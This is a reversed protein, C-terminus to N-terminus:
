GRKSRFSVFKDPVEEQYKRYDDGLHHVLDKEELYTGMFIYATMGAAFVLHSVTMRPTAWFAIIMGTMMPHRVLKYLLPTRFKPPTHKQGRLNYYVQQLGFLEFHNILYMSTLVILWGAWFLGQLVSRGIANEVEWVVGPMTRWQWFIVALLVSTVLVFTSREIPRPIIKIWHKKFQWRAMITHQIAFLAILFMNMLLAPMFAYAPGSDLSKPVVLNGVFGILYLFVGFFAAYSLAGYAFALWRATATWPRSAMPPSMTQQQTTQM